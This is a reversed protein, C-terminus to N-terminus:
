CGKVDKKQENAASEATSLIDSLITFCFAKARSISLAREIAHLQICLFYESAFIYKMGHCTVASM